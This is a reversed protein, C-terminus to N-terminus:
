SDLFRSSSLSFCLVNKKKKNKEQNPAGESVLLPSLFQYMHLFTLLFFVWRRSFYVASIESISMSSPSFSSFGAPSPSLAFLLRPRGAPELFALLVRM